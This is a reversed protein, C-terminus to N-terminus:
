FRGAAHMVFEVYNECSECSTKMHQRDYRGHHKEALFFGFTVLDGMKGEM